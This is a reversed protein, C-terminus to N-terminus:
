QSRLRAYHLFEYRVGDPSQQPEQSVLQWQERSFEPFFTDGPVELDIRTLRLDTALPLAQRYIEAGGIICIEPADTCASLAAQLSTCIQTDACDAIEAKDLSRSLILNRRGPLPKKPLSTWTNRGMIVPKGYTFRKFFAFDEPLYWPIKGDKGIVHNHAYAAVLTIKQPTQLSQM